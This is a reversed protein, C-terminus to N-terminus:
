WALDEDLIPPQYQQKTRARQKQRELVLRALRMNVPEDALPHLAANVQNEDIDLRYMLSLLWELRHEILWGIRDSLLQFLAEESLADDAGEWEFDRRILAAAVELQTNIDSM